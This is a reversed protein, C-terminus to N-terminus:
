MVLLEQLRSAKKRFTNRRESQMSMVFIGSIALVPKNPPVLYQVLVMGIVFYALLTVVLIGFEYFYLHNQLSHIVEIMMCSTFLGGSQSVVSKKEIVFLEAMRLFMSM